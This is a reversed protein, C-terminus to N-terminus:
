IGLFVVFNLKREIKIKYIKGILLFLVILIMMMMIQIGHLIIKIEVM